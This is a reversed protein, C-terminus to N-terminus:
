REVGFIMAFESDTMLSTNSHFVDRFMQEEKDGKPKLGGKILEIKKVENEYFNLSRQTLMTSAIYLRQLKEDLESFPVYSNHMQLFSQSEGEYSYSVVREVGDYIFSLYRLEVTKYIVEGNENYRYSMLETDWDPVEVENVNDILRQCFLSNITSRLYHGRVNSEIIFISLNFLDPILNAPFPLSHIEITPYTGGVKPDFKIYPVFEDAM